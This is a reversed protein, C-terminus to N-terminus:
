KPVVNGYNSILAKGGSELVVFYDKGLFPPVKGSETWLFVRQHSLWKAKLSAEDEFIKPADTFFSGYWLNASRGEYIHIDNRRLYFGLTSGAEYEGHIVILDKPTVDNKIADALQKSTLAPAFFRLGTHAALLFTFAMGVIWLNSVHPEFQRRKWWAMATGVGFAVATLGLPGEFMGMAPGTLDLFHGFSLAYEGPNQQLLAAIDTGPPPEKANLLLLGCVMMILVGLVFMVTVVRQGTAVLPQPVAFSEAEVAEEQLWCAILLALAPLAPLVYYEQRTSFSFFLMPVAAWVALFLRERGAKTADRFRVRKLAPLVFASWPLLWVLLLAWFLWLPVTDYDRPVRLNMYRLVHENMFYFWTWGHVNGLTPEPVFWHGNQRILGVPHGHDPNALGILVHWPAAVALFVLLSSIPRMQWVRRPMGRWGHALLLYVVAIAGPFVLGILGKTLVGLACFVAFGWCYATEYGRTSWGRLELTPPLASEVRWFCYMAVTLWLCVAVDPLLIRSFIFIGFCSLLVIAAYFGAREGNLRSGFIWAIAALALVMLAMPVRAAAAYAGLVKMSAAMSWYLVPAKELYRIGNAYLTVWDGRQVMERAVEAHVSDADDLLPPSFLTFSAYFVAWLALLWM